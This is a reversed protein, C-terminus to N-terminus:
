YYNGCPYYYHVTRKERHIHHKKTEIQAASNLQDFPDNKKKDYCIYFTLSLM